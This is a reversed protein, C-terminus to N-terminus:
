DVTTARGVESFNKQTLDPPHVKLVWGGDVQLVQGTGYAFRESAISAYFLAM